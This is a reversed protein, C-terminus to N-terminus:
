TKSKSQLQKLQRDVEAEYQRLISRVGRVRNAQAIIPDDMVNQLKDSKKLEEAVMGYDRRIGNRDDFEAIEAEAVEKIPSELYWFGDNLCCAAVYSRVDNDYTRSNDVRAAVTLSIAIEEAEPPQVLNFIPAEGVIAATIKEFVEWDSWFANHLQLVRAAQIREWTLVGLKGWRDECEEKLAESTWNLYSPGLADLLLVSLPIVHLGTEDELLGAKRVLPESV